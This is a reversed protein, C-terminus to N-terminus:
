TAESRVETFSRQQRSIMAHRPAPTTRDRVPGCPLLTKMAKGLQVRRLNLLSKGIVGPDISQWKL